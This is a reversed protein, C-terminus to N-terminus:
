IRLRPAPVLLEDDRQEPPEVDGDVFELVDEAHSGREDVRQSPTLILKDEERMPAHAASSQAARDDVSVLRRISALVDEIESKSVPDSM